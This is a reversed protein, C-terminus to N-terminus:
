AVGKIEAWEGHAEVIGKCYLYARPSTDQLRTEVPVNLVVRSYHECHDSFVVSWVNRARWWHLRIVRPKSM